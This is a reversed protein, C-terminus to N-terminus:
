PQRGHRLTRARPGDTPNRQRRGTFRYPRPMTASDVYLEALDSLATATDPHYRGHLKRYIALVQQDLPLAKAYDGLKFYLEGLHSRAAATDEHEPGATKRLVRM